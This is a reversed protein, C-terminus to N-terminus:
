VFPMKETNNGHGKSSSAKESRIFDDRREAGAPHALDIAGQSGRRPRSTAILTMESAAPATRLPRPELLLRAGNGRQRM